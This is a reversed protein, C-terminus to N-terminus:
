DDSYFEQLDDLRLCGLRSFSQKIACGCDIGIRNETKWIQLPNDYEFYMTPTHGFVVVTDEPVPERYVDRSFVAYETRDAYEYGYKEFNDVVAAHVLLYKQSNVEIPINLPLDAVYEFVEQRVSKQIHKLYDHTVRGGNRYWVDVKTKQIWDKSIHKNKELSPYYLSELMMYEHNGLLMKMNPTNMIRRLVRIGDPGRDIVDGLIYLADESQLNIKQLVNEFRSGCGHIDSMVYVM